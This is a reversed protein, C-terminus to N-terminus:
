YLILHGVNAGFTRLVNQARENRDTFETLLSQDAEWTFYFSVFSFFLAIGLLMLLSGLIIKNPKSLKLTFGKKTPASKPKKVKRAM